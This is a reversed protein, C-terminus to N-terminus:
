DEYVRCEDADPVDACYVALPDDVTAPVAGSGNRGSAAGGSPCRDFMEALAKLKSTDSSIKQFKFGGPLRWGWNGEARGPSNMRHENDLRLVDQLMIMCTGSVSRMAEHIFAWAIDDRRDMKLYTQLYRKEKEQVRTRAKLTLAACVRPANVANKQMVGQSHLAASCSRTYTQAPVRRAAQMCCTRTASCAWRPVACRRATRTGGRARRTTTRAPTSLATRMTTTRCTRTTTAGAGRSSCPLESEDSRFHATRAHLSSLAAVEDLILYSAIRRSAPSTPSRRAQLVVMGPADIGRRLAKVDETIVGLDEAMIFPAAAGLNKTVADFLAKGPGKRWTGVMATEAGADVAWYGAFARFHDIRTQDYVQAAACWDRAPGTSARSRWPALASAVTQLQVGSVSGRKALSTCCADAAFVCAARPELAHRGRAASASAGGRM